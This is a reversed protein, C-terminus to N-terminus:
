SWAAVRLDNELEAHRAQLEAIDSKLKTIVAYPDEEKSPTLTDRRKKQAEAEIQPSFHDTGRKMGLERSPTSLAVDDDKVQRLCEIRCLM